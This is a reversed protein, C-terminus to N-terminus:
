DEKKDKALKVLRLETPPGVDLPEEEDDMIKLWDPVEYGLEDLEVRLQMTAVAFFMNAVGDFHKGLGGIVAALTGISISVLISGILVAVWTAM